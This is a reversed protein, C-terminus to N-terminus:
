NRYSRQSPISVTVLSESWRVFRLEATSRDWPPGVSLWRAANAPWISHCSGIAPRLSHSPRIWCLPDPGVLARAVQHGQQILWVVLGILEGLFSLM